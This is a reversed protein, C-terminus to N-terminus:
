VALEIGIITAILLGGYLLVLFMFSGVFDHM